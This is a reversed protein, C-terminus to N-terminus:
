IQVTGGDVVITQGTGFEEQMLLNHVHISTPMSIGEASGTRERLRKRQGDV